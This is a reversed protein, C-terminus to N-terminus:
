LRGEYKPPASAQSEVNSSAKPSAIDESRFKPDFVLVPLLNGNLLEELVSEQSRKLRQRLSNSMQFANEPILHM